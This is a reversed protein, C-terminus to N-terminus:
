SEHQASLIFQVMLSAHMQIILRNGLVNARSISWESLSRLSEAATNRCNCPTGVKEAAGLSFLPQCVAESFSLSDQESFTITM